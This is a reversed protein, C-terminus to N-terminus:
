FTSIKTNTQCYNTISFTHCSTMQFSHLRTTYIDSFAKTIRQWNQSCRGGGLINPTMPFCIFDNKQLPWLWINCNSYHPPLTYEELCYDRCHLKQIIGPPVNIYRTPWLNLNTTDDKWTTHTKGRLKTTYNWGNTTQQLWKRNVLQEVNNPQGSDGLICQILYKSSIELKIITAHQDYSICM